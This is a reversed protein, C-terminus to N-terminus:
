KGKTIEKLAMPVLKAVDASPNATVLKQAIELVDLRRYGLVELAALLDPLAGGTKVSVDPAFLSATVGGIKNKLEVIIKEAMKKGVGPATAITKADGTAIASMLVDSSITGLIALAVKPGV